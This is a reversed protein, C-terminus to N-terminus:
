LFVHFTIKKRLKYFGSVDKLVRNMYTDTYVGRFFGIEKPSILSLATKNMKVRILEGKQNQTKKPVYILLNSMLNQQHTLLMIDSIRLGGGFCAFLFRQLVDKHTDNIFNSKYYNLMNILEKTNLYTRKSKFRKVKIEAPDLRLKIRKKRALNIYKKFNKLDSSLTNLTNKQNRQGWTKFEQILDLTLETFLIEPKFKRLKNLFSKQQRFSGPALIEKQLLLQHEYFKLFCTRPTTEFFEDKFQAISLEEEMLRYNTIIKTAKRKINDIVLQQDTEMSDRLKKLKQSKQNWNSVKVYVQVSLKRQKGDKYAILHLPAIGLENMLDKRITLNWKVLCFKTMKVRTFADPNIDPNFVGMMTTQEM